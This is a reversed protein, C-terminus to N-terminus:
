KQENYCKRKKGTFNERDKKQNQAIIIGSYFTVPSDIKRCFLVLSLFVILNKIEPM